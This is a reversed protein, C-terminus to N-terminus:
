KDGNGIISNRRRSQRGKSGPRAVPTSSSSSTATATTTKAAGSSSSGGSTTNSNQRAIKNHVSATSGTSSGRRMMPLSNFSSGFSNNFSTSTSTSTSGSKKSTGSSSSSTGNEMLFKMRDNKQLLSSSSSSSSEGGGGGGQKTNVKTYKEGQKSLAAALKAEVVEKGRGLKRMVEKGRCVEGELGNVMVKYGECQTKLEENERSLNEFHCEM